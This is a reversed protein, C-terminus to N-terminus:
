HDNPPSVVSSSIMHDRVLTVDPQGNDLNYIYVRYLTSDM